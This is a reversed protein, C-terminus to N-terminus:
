CQIQHHFIRKKPDFLFHHHHQVPLDKCFRQLPNQHVPSVISFDVVTVIQFYIEFELYYIDFRESYNQRLVTGPDGLRTPRAGPFLKGYLANECPFPLEFRGGAGNNKLKEIIDLIELVATLM